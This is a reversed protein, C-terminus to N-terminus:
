KRRHRRFALFSVLATIGLPWAEFPTGTAAAPATCAGSTRQDSTPANGAGTNDPTAPLSASTDTMPHAHERLWELDQQSESLPRTRGCRHAQPPTGPPLDPASDAYVVYEEGTMFTVGCSAEQRPTTVSINEHAPGKWVTTSRFEVLVDLSKLDDTSAGDPTIGEISVVTGLFVIVASEYAAEPNPPAACKCAYAPSGGALVQISAIIAIAATVLLMKVAPRSRTALTSAAGTRKM